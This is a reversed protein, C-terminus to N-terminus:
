GEPQRAQKSILFSRRAGARKTGSDFQFLVLSALKRDVVRSSHDVESNSSRVAQALRFELDGHHRVAVKWHSDSTVDAPEEVRYM